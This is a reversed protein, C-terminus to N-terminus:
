EDSGNKFKNCKEMWASKEGETMKLVAQETKEKLDNFLCTIEENTYQYYAKFWTQDKELDADLNVIRSDTYTLNMFYVREFQGGLKTLDIAYYDYDGESSYFVSFREEFDQQKFVLSIQTEKSNFASNSESQGYTVSLFITMFLLFIAIKM